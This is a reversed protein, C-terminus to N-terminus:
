KPHNIITIILATYNNNKKKVSSPSEPMSWWLLTWITTSALGASSPRLVSYVADNRFSRHEWVTWANEERSRIPNYIFMVMKLSGFWILTVNGRFVFVRVEQLIGM